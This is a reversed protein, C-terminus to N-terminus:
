SLLWQFSCVDLLLWNRRMILAPLSIGAHNAPWGTRPCFLQCRQSKGCCSPDFRRHDVPPHHLSGACSCSDSLAVRTAFSVAFCSSCNLVKCPSADHNVSFLGFTSQLVCFKSKERKKKLLHTPTSEQGSKM